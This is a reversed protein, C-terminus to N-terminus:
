VRSTPYLSLGVVFSCDELHEEFPELDSMSLRSPAMPLEFNPLFPRRFAPMFAMAGPSGLSTHSCSSDIDSLGIFTELPTDSLM